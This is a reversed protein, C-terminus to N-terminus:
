GAEDVNFISVKTVKITPYMNQIMTTIIKIHKENDGFNNLVVLPSTAFDMPRSLPRQQSKMIDKALVYDEVHFYLTPGRPIRGM